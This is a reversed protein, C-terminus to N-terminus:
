KKTSNAYVIVPEEKIDQEYWSELMRSGALRVEQPVIPNQPPPPPADAALQANPAADNGAGGDNNGNAILYNLM